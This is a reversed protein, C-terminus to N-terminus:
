RPCVPLGLFEARRSPLSPDTSMPSGARVMRRSESFGQQGVTKTAAKKQIALVRGHGRVFTLHKEALSDPIKQCFKTLNKLFLYKPKKGTSLHHHKHNLSMRVYRLSMSPFNAGKPIM